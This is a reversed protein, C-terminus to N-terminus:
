ALGAPASERGAVGEPAAPTQLGQPDAGEIHRLVATALDRGARRFDENVVHIEPRFWQLPNSSQKSVVDVAGNGAAIRRPDRLEVVAALGLLQDLRPKEPDSPM